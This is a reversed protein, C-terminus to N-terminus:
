SQESVYQFVLAIEEINMGFFVGSSFSVKHGFHKLFAFIFFADM